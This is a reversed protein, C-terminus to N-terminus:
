LESNKSHFIRRLIIGFPLRRVSNVLRFRLKCKMGIYKAKIPNMGNKISIEIGEPVTQSIYTKQNVGGLRFKALDADFYQFKAGGIYMRLLLDRDMQCKYKKDFVGYKDYAARRVFTAPHVLAMRERLVDINPFPKYRYDKEKGGFMIANGYFVDTDSEIHESIIKLANEGLQDDSNIIGIIEGNAMHIGKNFADSIGEDPESVYRSVVNKYKEIIELTKDTSGGDIIIYEYDTYNQAAISKITDELTKESNYTVTVISFKMEM